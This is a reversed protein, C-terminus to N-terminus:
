RGSLYSLTIAPRFHGLEQSLILLADRPPLLACLTALRRRAFSHRLGHLGRSWGLALESARSFSSSLAQGGGISFSSMYDVERDRIAVPAPRLLKLLADSLEISVAVERSLGGKGTVLYIVIDTLGAFRDPSWDRHTSPAGDCRRTLTICEHARLGADFCLLTALQNKRTQYKIVQSLEDFTYARDRTVTAVLSEVTPLTVAFTKQLAQRAQDLSKQGHSEAYEDIFEMLMDRTHLTQLPIRQDRLWELYATVVQRYARETGISRVAWANLADLDAKSRRHVTMDAVLERALSQLTTM